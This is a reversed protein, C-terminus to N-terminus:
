MLTHDPPVAFNGVDDSKAESFWSLRASTAPTSLPRGYIVDVFNETKIWMQWICGADLKIDSNTTNAVVLFTCFVIKIPIKEWGM